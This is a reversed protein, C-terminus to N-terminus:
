ERVQAEILSREVSSQEASRQQALGTTTSPGDRKVPERLTAPTMPPGQDRQPSLDMKAVMPAKGKRSPPRVPPLLTEGSRIDDLNTRLYLAGVIGNKAGYYILQPGLWAVSLLPSGASFMAVQNGGTLCWVRLSGDSGASLLRESEGEVFAISNVPGVHGRHPM